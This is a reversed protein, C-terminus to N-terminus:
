QAQLQTVRNLITRRGRHAAEYAGIAALESESLTTLRPVVQSAALSDYGPIPLDDVAPSEASGTDVEPEAEVSDEDAGELISLVDVPEALPEGSGHEASSPEASGQEATDHREGDHATPGQGSAGSDESRDAQGSCVLMSLLHQSAQVQAITRSALRPPLSLIEGLLTADAGDDPGDPSRTDPM